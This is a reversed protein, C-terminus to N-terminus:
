VAQLQELQAVQAVMITIIMIMIMLPPITQLIVTFWFNIKM